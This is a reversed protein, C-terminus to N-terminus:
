GTGLHACLSARANRIHDVILAEAADIKGEACAEVIARHDANARAHGESLMLQARIYRDLRDMAKELTALHFPMDSAQYLTAHFQRNLDGWRNPDTAAECAACIGHAKDILAPTMRPVARRIVQAEVVCRFDFIEGAEALSLGSVVAGKFRHNKVLGHHELRAIAERVPIRSINFLRAVEDQRIPDGDKLDGQIIARRLADYVLAGASPTLAINLDKLAM